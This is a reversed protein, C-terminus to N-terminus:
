AYNKEIGWNLSASFPQKVFNKTVTLSFCNSLFGHINLM